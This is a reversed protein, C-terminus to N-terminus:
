RFMSNSPDSLGTAGDEFSQRRRDHFSLRNNTRRMYSERLGFEASITRFFVKVIFRRQEVDARGEITNAVRNQSQDDPVAHYSALIGANGRLPTEMVAVSADMVEKFIVLSTEYLSEVNGPWDAVNPSREFRDSMDVASDVLSLRRVGHHVESLVDGVYEIAANTFGTGSSAYLRKVRALGDRFGVIAHQDVTTPRVHAVSITSTRVMTQIRNRIAVLKEKNQSLTRQRNIRELLPDKAGGQTAEVIHGLEAFTRRAATRASKACDASVQDQILNYSDDLSEVEDPLLQVIGDFERVEECRKRLSSTVEHAAQVLAISASVGGIISLPDM